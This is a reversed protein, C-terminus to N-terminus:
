SRVARTPRRAEMAEPLATFFVLELGALVGILLVFGVGAAPQGEMVELPSRCAAAIFSCVALAVNGVVHFWTPPAEVRGFCGCSTAGLSMARIVTVAFVVYLVGVAVAVAPIEAVLAAIGVVIEVVGLGLALRAGTIPGGVPAGLDEILDATTAPRIVKVAGAIVLLVAASAYLATAADM